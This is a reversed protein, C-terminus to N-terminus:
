STELNSSTLIIEPYKFRLFEFFLLFDSNCSVPWSDLIKEVIIKNKIHREKFEKFEKKNFDIGYDFPTYNLERIIHEQKFNREKIEM